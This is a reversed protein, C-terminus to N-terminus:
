EEKSEVVLTKLKYSTIKKIQAEETYIIGSGYNISAEPDLDWSGQHCAVLKGDKDHFSISYIAKVQKKTKNNMEANASITTHGFFEDQYVKVTFEVKEGTKIVVQKEDEFPGAKQIKIKKEQYTEEVAAYGISVALAMVAIMILSIKKM